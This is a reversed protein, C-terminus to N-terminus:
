HSALFDRVWEAQEPHQDILCAALISFGNIKGETLYDVIRNFQFEMAELPVPSRTPYDRLYCGLVVPKGPFVERCKGVYEDLHVLNKAEWVWLNAVDVGPLYPRWYDANLEHSYVV